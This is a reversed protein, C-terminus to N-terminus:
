RIPRLARYRRHTALDACPKRGPIEGCDPCAGGLVAYDACDPCLHDATPDDLDRRYRDTCHKCAADIMAAGRGRPAALDDDLKDCCGGRRDDHRHNKTEHEGILAIPQRVWGTADDIMDLYEPLPMARGTLVAYADRAEDAAYAAGAQHAANAAQAAAGYTTAHRWGRAWGAAIDAAERQRQRNAASPASPAITLAARAVNLHQGNTLEFRRYRSWGARRYGAALNLLEPWRDRQAEVADAYGATLHEALEAPGVPEALIGCRLCHTGDPDPQHDDDPCDQATPTAARRAIAGLDPAPGAIDDAGDVPVIPPPAGSWTWGRTEIEDRTYLYGDPGHQLPEDDHASPPYDRPEASM